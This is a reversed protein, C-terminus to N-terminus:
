SGTDGAARGCRSCRPEVRWEVKGPQEAREVPEPVGDLRLASLHPCPEPAGTREADAGPRGPFGASSVAHHM